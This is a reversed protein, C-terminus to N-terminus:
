YGRVKTMNRCFYYIFILCLIYLIASNVTFIRQQNNIIKEQNDIQLELYTNIETNEQLDELGEDIPIENTTNEQM